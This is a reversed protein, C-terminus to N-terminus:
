SARNSSAAVTERAHRDNPSGAGIRSDGRAVLSGATPSVIRVIPSLEGEVRRQNARIIQNYTLAAGEGCQAPDGYQEDGQAFATSGGFIALMVALWVIQLKKM